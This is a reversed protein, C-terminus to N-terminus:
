RPNFHPKRKEVFASVGEPFDEPDVFSTTGEWLEPASETSDAVARTAFASLVSINIVFLPRIFILTSVPIATYSNKM